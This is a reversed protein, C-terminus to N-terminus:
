CPIQFGPEFLPQDKVTPIAAALGRKGGLLLYSTCLSFLVIATSFGILQIM